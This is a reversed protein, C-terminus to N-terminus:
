AQWREHDKITSELEELRKELEATKYLEISTDLWKGAASMRVFESKTKTPDMSEYLTKIATNIGDRLMSLREDFIDQRRQKYVAKFLPSKIWRRGTREALNLQRCAAAVNVGALLLDILAEQKSTLREENEPIM